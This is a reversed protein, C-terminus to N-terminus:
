QQLRDLLAKAFTSNSKIGAHSLDRAKDITRMTFNEMDYPVQGSINCTILRSQSEVVARILDVTFKVRANFFGSLDGSVIFKVSDPNKEWSGNARAIKFEDNYTIYRSYDPWQIFVTKPKKKVKAFWTLLNYELVDIGTAPIALNYYDCKLEKSVLYPYTKELELGIGATHSCGTFLVYNDLDIDKLDRSRHGYSNYSYVIQTNNYYWDPPQSQKHKEFQEESDGGTFMMQTNTFDEGLFDDYFKM